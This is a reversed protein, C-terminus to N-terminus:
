AKALLISVNWCTNLPSPVPYKNKKFDLALVEYIQFYFWLVM